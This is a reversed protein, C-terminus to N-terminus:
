EDYLAVSLLLACEELKRRYLLFNECWVLNAQGSDSSIWGFLSQRFELLKLLLRQGHAGTFSSTLDKLHQASLGDMGSSSGPRFSKISETIDHLTLQLSPPVTSADATFSPRLSTRIESRGWVVEVRRSIRQVKM